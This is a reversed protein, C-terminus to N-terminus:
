LYTYMMENCHPSQKNKAETPMLQVAKGKTRMTKGRARMRRSDVQIMRFHRVSGTGQFLAPFNFFPLTHVQYLKRKQNNRRTSTPPATSTETTGVAEMNLISTHIHIRDRKSFDSRPEYFHRSGFKGPRSDVNAPRPILGWEGEGLQVESVDAVHSLNVCHLLGLVSNVV